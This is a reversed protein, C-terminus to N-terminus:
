EAVEMVGSNYHIDNAMMLASEWDAAMEYAIDGSMTVYAFTQEGGNTTASTSGTLEYYEEAVIVGSDTQRDDADDIAETATDAPEAEIDGDASVYLYADSAADTTSDYEADDQYDAAAMVGSNYKIDDAMMLAASASDAEIMALEGASTEYIYTNASVAGATFLGLSMMAIFGSVYTIYHLTKQNM